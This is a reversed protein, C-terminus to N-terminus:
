GQAGGEEEESGLDRTVRPDALLARLEQRARDKEM